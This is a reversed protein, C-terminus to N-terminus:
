QKDNKTNLSRLSFETDILDHWLEISAHRGVKNEISNRKNIPLQIFKKLIQFDLTPRLAHGKDYYENDLREMRHNLGALPIEKETLQQQVLYLRRYSTENLPIMRFVSGDTQCGIAIFNSQKSGFENNKNVLKLCTNSSFMNFTNCHVLRQGSLSNPEDPAYRLVHLLNQRDTVIFNVNGNNVIFELNTVQFKSTSKGLVIMRYPEADFGVFTFGQMADGIVMLNSFSKADSIFVPMDLFAVPVASNDEQM